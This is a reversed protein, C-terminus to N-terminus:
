CLSTYQTTAALEVLELEILERHLSIVERSILAQGQETLLRKAWDASSWVRGQSGQM